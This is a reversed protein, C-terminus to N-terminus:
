GYATQEAGPAASRDRLTGPDGTADVVVGATLVGDDTEVVPAAGEGRVARARRALVRVGAMRDDLHARLGATDLVAYHRPLLHPGTGYARARVRAGVATAPVGDPLE